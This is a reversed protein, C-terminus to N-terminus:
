VSLCVISYFFFSCIKVVAGLFSIWIAFLCICLNLGWWDDLVYLHFNFGCHSVLTCLSSHSFIFLIFFVVDRFLQHPRSCKSIGRAARPLTLQCLQGPFSKSVILLNFSNQTYQLVLCHTFIYIHSDHKEWGFFHSVFLSHPFGFLLGSHDSQFEFYSFFIIETTELFGVALSVGPSSSGLGHNRFAM